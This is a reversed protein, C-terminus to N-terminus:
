HQQPEAVPEAGGLEASRQEPTMNLV